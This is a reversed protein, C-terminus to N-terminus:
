REEAFVAIEDYLVSMETIGTYLVAPKTHSQEGLYVGLAQVVEERFTPDLVQCRIDRCNMFHLRADKGKPHTENVITCDIALTSGGNNLQVNRIYFDGPSLNLLQWLRPDM